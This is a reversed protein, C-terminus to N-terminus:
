EEKPFFLFFINNGTTSRLCDSPEMLMDDEVSVKTHPPHELEEDDLGLLKKLDTENGNIAAELLDKKMFLRKPDNQTKPEETVPYSTIKSAM